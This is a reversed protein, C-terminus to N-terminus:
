CPDDRVQGKALWRYSLANFLHGLAAHGAEVDDGFHRKAADVISRLEAASWFAEPPLDQRRALRGGREKLALLWSGRLPAVAGCEVSRLLADYGAYPADSRTAEAEHSGSQRRRALIARLREAASVAAFARYDFTENESGM